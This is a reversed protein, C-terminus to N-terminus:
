KTKPEEFKTSHTKLFRIIEDPMPDGLSYERDGAFDFDSPMVAQGSVVDRALTAFLEGGETRVETGKRLYVSAPESAKPMKARISQRM